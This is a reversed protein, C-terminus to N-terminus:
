INADVDEDSSQDSELGNDGTSEPDCWWGTSAGHPKKMPHLHIHNRPHRQHHNRLNHLPPPLRHSPHALNEIACHTQEIIYRITNIKKNFEKESDHLERDVPKKIPTILGPAPTHGKDGIHVVHDIVDLFRSDKVATLDYPAQRPFTTFGM